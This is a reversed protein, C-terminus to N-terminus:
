KEDKKHYQLFEEITKRVYIDYEKKWEKYLSLIKQKNELAYKIKEYIAMINDEKTVVLYQELETNEFYHHNDGTICPVGLELSELPILPSCETFTVYLNIDNQAMYKFLEERTVKDQSGSLNLEFLNALEMVKYNLPICNLEANPILSAASVQNYTNKVWRDGSSYLGLKVKDTRKMETRYQEINAINVTNAIFKVKLGKQKYFEYLSKKVLGIEDIINQKHLEIIKTNSNWDYEESLMAHSGHWLVKIEINANLGKLEKAIYEWGTAFGNFIVIKKQHNCIVKAMNKAEKETYQERLLVNHEFADKAVNGVGIWEPHSIVIYDGEEKTLVEDFKKVRKKRNIHISLFMKTNYGKRKIFGILRNKLNCIAYFTKLIIKGMKMGFTRYITIAVKEGKPVWTANYYHVMCTNNTYIKKSYNYNIPYFYDEPYVYIKEDIIEIKGEVRKDYKSFIKTIVKPISIQFMGQEHFGTQSNYFDLIEKIYKNEKEKVGIVGAAIIKNAEYGIFLDKDKLFDINKIVEMDTDFYIGGEQYLAYLRAYDSVFAWKKKEYAEKVFPCINIDFNKENWEKIEYDPLYKKWSKICKKALAPLPNEGFWCYHIVKSLNNKRRIIETILILVM